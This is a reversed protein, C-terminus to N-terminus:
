GGVCYISVVTDGHRRRKMLQFAGVATELDVRKSHEVVLTTRPGVLSSGAVKEVVQSINPDAYPPDMFIVGYPDSLIHLVRHADLCFVRARNELETHALNERIIACCRADKEVFDAWGAGRSLAEIGLAGTGAYLDLVRTWDTLQAELIDFVAGRVLDSTPRVKMGRPAKLHHGKVVGAIVRM